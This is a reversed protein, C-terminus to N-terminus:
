ILSSNELAAALSILNHAPIYECPLAFLIFVACVCVCMGARQTRVYVYLFTIPFRLVKEDMLFEVSMWRRAPAIDRM